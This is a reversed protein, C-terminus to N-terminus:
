PSANCSPSSSAPSKLKTCNPLTVPPGTHPPCCRRPSPSAGRWMKRRTRSPARSTPTASPAPRAAYWRRPPSPGIYLFRLCTTFQYCALDRAMEGLNPVHIIVADVMRRLSRLHLFGPRPQDSRHAPSGSCSTDQRRRRGRESSCCFRSSLGAASSSQWPNFWLRFMTRKVEAIERFHEAGERFGAQLQGAMEACRLMEVFYRPWARGSRLFGEYYPARRCPTACPRLARRARKSRYRLLVGFLRDSQVGAGLLESM